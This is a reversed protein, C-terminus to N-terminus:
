QERLLELKFNEYQKKPSFTFLTQPEAETVKYKFVKRQRIQSFEVELIVGKLHNIFRKTKPNKDAKTVPLIIRIYDPKQM